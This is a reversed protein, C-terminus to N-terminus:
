CLVATIDSTLYTSPHGVCTVRDPIKKARDPIKKVKKVMKRGGKKTPGAVVLKSM